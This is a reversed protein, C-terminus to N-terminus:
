SLLNYNFDIVSLKSLNGYESPISGFIRGDELLLYQLSELHQLETPLSGRLGDDGLQIRIINMNDCALGGWLCENSPTLWADSHSNDTARIGCQKNKENVEVVDNPNTPSNCERWYGGGTSFYFVAMIYRQIFNTDQPCSTYPDTQTIWELARNQPTGTDLLMDPDSVTNLINRMEIIRDDENM